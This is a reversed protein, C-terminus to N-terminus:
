RGWGGLADDEDTSGDCRYCAVGPFDPENGTGHCRTCTIVVVHGDPLWLEQRSGTWQNHDGPADVISVKWGPPSSSQWEAADLIGRAMVSKREPSTYVTVDQGCLPLFDPDASVIRM